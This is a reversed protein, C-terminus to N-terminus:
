YSGGTFSSKEDGYLNGLGCRKVFIKFLKRVRERNVYRGHPRLGGSFNGPIHLLEHIIIKVRDEIGLSDFYESLVEIIYMPKIGLAQIWIRPLGHIRAYATSRSGRSRYCIIRENDIHRFYDNLCYLIRRVLLCVDDAKEYEIRGM